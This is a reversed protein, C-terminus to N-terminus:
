RGTQSKIAELYLAFSELRKFTVLLPVHHCYVNYSARKRPLCSMKYFSYFVKGTKDDKKGELYLTTYKGITRYYVYQEIGCLFGIMKLRETLKSEM